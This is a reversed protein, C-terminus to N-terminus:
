ICDIIKDIIKDCNELNDEKLNNKLLELNSLLKSWELHNDNSKSIKPHSTEIINNSSTLIEHLKEGKALGIIKIEIDGNVNTKDKIKLGSLKIMRLALDIIKIPKGMDLIFLDGKNAMAGAQIVLQSAESITMFYRSVEKHTLTVPGGNKIQSRFLPVVSGNSNLVNGFRVMSFITGSAQNAMSISKLIIESVRKTKGMMNEPNVAKDTSVLIFSEVQENLATKCLYYTGFINNFIGSLPNKEVLTVHKYAAAHYITNINYKRINKKIISEDCINGLIPVIETQSGLNIKKNDIEREINFLFFENIEFLIIKNPKLKIIERAIESGISGGAGTILINKHNVNKALLKQDPPIIKRGLLEDSSLDEIGFNENLKPDVINSFKRIYLNYKELKGIIKNIEKKNINPIAIIIDTVGYKKKLKEIENPNYIKISNITRKHFKPDDDVFAILKFKNNGQIINGIKEGSNGAGFIIIKRQNIGKTPNQNLVFKYILRVILISFSLILPQIISISRPLVNSEIEQYGYLSKFIIFLIFYAFTYVILAKVIQYISYLDAYRYVTKYLGFFQFTPIAICVPLFYFLLIKDSPLHFEELRISFSTWVSFLILIIDIGLVVLQKVGTKLDFLYSIIKHM